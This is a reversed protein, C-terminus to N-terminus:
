APIPPRFVFPLYLREISHVPVLPAEEIIERQQVPPALKLGPLLFSGCCSCVCVPSCHDTGEGHHGHTHSALTTIEASHEPADAVCAQAADACPLFALILFYIALITPTATKM